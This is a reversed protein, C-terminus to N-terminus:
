RELNSILEYAKRLRNSRYKDSHASDKFGKEISADYDAEAWKIAKAILTNIQIYLENTTTRDDIGAVM